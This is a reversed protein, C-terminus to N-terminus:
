NTLIMMKTDLITGDAVLSYFYTGAQLAGADLHLSGEGNQALALVKVVRGQIDVIQLEAQRYTDPIYYKILTNQHFPNPINQQLAAVRQISNSAADQMKHATNAQSLMQKIQQIESSLQENQQKLTAIEHHQGDLMTQQEQIARVLVPILDSYYVGLRQSAQSEWTKKDENWSWEKDEVVEKMIQQVDQAILGVKKGAQPQEKWEYTVPRLRLVEALGYQLNQINQKDRADSTSITGNTAWVVTWRKSSMGLSRTNDTSPAVLGNVSFTTSGLGEITVTSGLKIKGNVHLPASPSDTGIGVNGSKLVTLANKRSTSATGCGITFLRDSTDWNVTSFANNHVNYRGIAVEYASKAVLNHGITTAYAGTAVNYSGISASTNGSAVSGKGFAISFSGVNADDWSTGVAYGSRLAGKGDIWMFRTGSGSAPTTGSLTTLTDAAGTALMSSNYVAFDQAQLAVPLAVGLMM